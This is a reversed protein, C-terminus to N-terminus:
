PTAAANIYVDVRLGVLLQPDESTVDIWVTRTKTDLRETPRGQYLQKPQMRQALRAVTGELATNGLGDARIIVPMGIQLNPADIEDVFARVRYRSTDALILTPTGVEPGVLEGPKSNIELVRGRIPARIQTREVNAKALEVAAKAMMVQATAIKVDEPRPQSELDALRAATAEAEALTAEMKVRQDDAEQMTITGTQLLQEVRKWTAMQHERRALQAQHLAQAEQLTQLTPGRSIKELRAEALELKARAQDLERLQLVNEVQLLLDGPSVSEGEAVPIDVVRGAVPVRLAIEETLGEVRGDAFITTTRDVQTVPAPRSKAPTTQLVVALLVGAGVSAAGVAFKVMSRTHPLHM